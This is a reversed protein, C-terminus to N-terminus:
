AKMKPHWSLSTTFTVTLLQLMAQRLGCECEAQEWQGYWRPIGPLRPLLAVLWSCRRWHDPSFPPVEERLAFSLQHFLTTM